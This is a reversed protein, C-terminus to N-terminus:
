SLFLKFTTGENMKSRVDITGGHSHVISQVLYLGVGQGDVHTHMRKFLSFIKNKGQKEDFGIGNDSVILVPKANEIDTQIEIIAGREPSRYKIANTILNLLISHIQISNYNVKQLKSFDSVIEVGTTKILESVESKVETLVSKFRVIEKKKSLSKLAFIENLALVKDRTLNVVRRVKTFISKGGREIYAGEELIDLLSQLNTLPAKLDHAMVFSLEELEKNKQELNANLKKLQDQADTLNEIAIMFDTVNAAAVLLGEGVKFVRIKAVLSGMGLDSQLISDEVVSAKGTRLTEKYIKYRETKEIGPSLTLINQGVVQERKIKLSELCTKNLDVVNLSKDFILVSEEAMDFFGARLDNDINDTIMNQTGNGKIGDGWSM